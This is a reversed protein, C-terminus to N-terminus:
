VQYQCLLLYPPWDEPRRRKGVFANQNVVVARVSHRARGIDINALGEIMAGVECAPSTSWSRARNM